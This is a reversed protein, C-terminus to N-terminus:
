GFAELIVGKELKLVGQDIMRKIHRNATRQSCELELAVAEKLDSRSVEGFDNMRDFQEKVVQEAYDPSKKDLPKDPTMELVLSSTDQGDADVLSVSLKMFALPESKEEDKM